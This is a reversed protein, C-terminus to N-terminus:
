PACGDAGANGDHPGRRQLAPQCPDHQGRRGAGSRLRHLHDPESEVARGPRRNPVIGEGTQGLADVVRYRFSVQGRHGPVSSYLISAGDASITASGRQPQSVIRDLTVVDGDPDMGFGDFAVLTSQGSLVRGELTEAAPARNADDDLVRIRVRATDALSPAGTTFVSYEVGYEGPEDPALYRLLDGSGFALADHTSSTISAPNLTPRGGAPSLDNELVPIDIQAGARVVVTDDVAIPALEPAPPLLYVTAEGEVRAGQDDTGDSVIYRVTGLRGPEGSATSGSVRLHNQGVADVSLSAGYDAAAVVDSLLLVRRTPNSVAAFIDLTADRQPHVFAVVPATALQPPADEPLVTIRATGTADSLGDTVTFDVRFSGPSSASFDFTTTGGVITASAAADDLVRVSDLSMTGTTGTVHPAVDVTIGADVTDIIAFSQVALEPQPSVRVLLPKQIRQGLTDAVTVTLEVVEEGGGGADSHQYVVDGNPTAAVSGVRSPNDVGLLLLPDGEPDVWGPLVPVTVTGGRAVEPEPWEVLCRIVGCWEPASDVTADAVTLQVATPESLLGGQTTGDSVAYALTASGSADSAIRVTIRQGNDTISATGFGPDLGTVSAPDISLVDENPDHDNMLVPLSVLNGARVGFADPEAIPPKPDILVTLQEESPM